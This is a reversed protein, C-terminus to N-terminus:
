RAEESRKKLGNAELTLFRETTKGLLKAVLGGLRGSYTVSLTARSGSATPDVAHHGAARLGPSRTVWTFNRGEKLETVEWVAPLFKPQRIRARSGVRFKGSDLRRVSLVSATWEPWREVDTTISWVRQPPASIDIAIEFVRASPDATVRPYSRSM